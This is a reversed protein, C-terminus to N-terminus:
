LAVREERRARFSKYDFIASKVQRCAFVPHSYTKCRSKILKSPSVLKCALNVPFVRQSYTKATKSATPTMDKIDM